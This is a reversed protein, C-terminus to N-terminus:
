KFIKIDLVDEFYLHGKDIFISEVVTLNQECKKSQVSFM